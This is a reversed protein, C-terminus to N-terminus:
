GIKLEEIKRVEVNRYLINRLKELKSFMYQSGVMNMIHYICM